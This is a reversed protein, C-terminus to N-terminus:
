LWENIWQKIDNLSVVFEKTDSPYFSYLVCKEYFRHLTDSKVNYLEERINQLDKLLNKMNFDKRNLRDLCADVSAEFFSGDAKDIVITKSDNYHYRDGIIM